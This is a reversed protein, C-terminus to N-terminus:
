IDEEDIRSFTGCSRNTALDKSKSLIYEYKSDMQGTFSLLIVLILEAHSTEKWAHVKADLNQQLIINGRNNEM